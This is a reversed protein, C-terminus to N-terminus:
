KGCKICLDLNIHSKGNIINIAQKLCANKCPNALYGVYVDTVYYSDIPGSNCAFDIVNIPPPEYYKETITSEEIGRSIPIKNDHNRRNLGLTLRIREGAIARELFISDRYILQGRFLKYHIEDVRSYDGGEYGLHTGRWFDKM